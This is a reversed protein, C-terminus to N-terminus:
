KLDEKDKDSIDSWRLPRNHFAVKYAEKLIDEIEDIM